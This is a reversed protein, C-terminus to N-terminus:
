ADDDITPAAVQMMIQHTEAVPVTRQNGDMVGSNHVAQGLNVAINVRLVALFALISTQTVLYREPYYELCLEM